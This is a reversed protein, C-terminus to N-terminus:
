EPYLVEIEALRRRLRRRTDDDHEGSLRDALTARETPEPPAVLERLFPHVYPRSSDLTLLVADRARTVGVYLVRREEEIEAPSWFSVDCDYDPIAVAAYERGKAAHITALDVRDDAAAGAPSNRTTPPGGAAEEDEKLRDWAVLFATPDPYAEALVALADLVQFPGGDDSGQRRAGTEGAGGASAPSHAATRWHQVLDFGEIVAGLLEAAAVKPPPDPSTTM